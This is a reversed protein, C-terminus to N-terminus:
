TIINCDKYKNTLTTNIESLEYKKEFEVILHGDLLNRPDIGLKLLGLYTTKKAESDIHKNLKLARLYGAINTLLIFPYTLILIILSTHNIRLHHIKKIEFGALKALMRLKQIGILFVHGFYISSKNQNHSFWISDLENPPMIKYFHESETLFNSLRSRLMSGNPTTLLLTGEQKLVRNLERFLLFQDSLHEIGEQCLIFDAYSSPIPLEKSLDANKCEMDAVKFFEPFLDYAEVKANLSKLIESSYGSGAPIDLVIKNQLEAQKAVLLSRIFVKIDKSGIM